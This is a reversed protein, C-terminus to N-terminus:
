TRRALAKCSSAAASAAVRSARKAAFCPNVRHMISIYIYCIYMHTHVYICISSDTARDPVGQWGTADPLWRLISMHIM